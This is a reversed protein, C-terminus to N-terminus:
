STLFVRFSMLCRFWIRGPLIIIPHFHKVLNRAQIQVCPTSACSTGFIINFSDLNNPISFMKLVLWLKGILKSPPLLHFTGKPTHPHLQFRSLTFIEEIAHLPIASLFGVLISSSYFMLPSSKASIFDQSLSSQNIPIGLRFRKESKDTM